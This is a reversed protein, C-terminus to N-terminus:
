LWKELGKPLQGSRNRQFTGYDAAELDPFDKAELPPFDKLKEALMEDTLRGHCSKAQHNLGNLQALLWLEVQHQLWIQFSEKIQLTKEAQMVLSDDLSIPYTCMIMSKRVAFTIMEGSMAVNKWCRQKKPLPECRRGPISDGRRPKGQTAVADSLRLMGYGYPRSRRCCGPLCLFWLSARCGPM